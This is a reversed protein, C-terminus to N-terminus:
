VLAQEPPAQRGMVWALAGAALALAALALSLSWAWLEPLELGPHWWAWFLWAAFVLSVGTTSWAIAQRFPVFRSPNGQSYAKGLLAGDLGDVLAMGGTFALGLGLAVGPGGGVSAALGWAAAQTATDMVLAMSAGAGVWGLPHSAWPWKSWVQGMPGGLGSGRWLSWLNGLGLAALILAPLLDFCSLLAAPPIWASRLWATGVAGLSVVGGHGLAFGVGVWAAWRGGQARWSLADIASLHDPDLGHRLGLAFAVALGPLAVADPSM